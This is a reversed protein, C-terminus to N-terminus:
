QISSLAAAINLVMQRWTRGGRRQVALLRADQATQDRRIGRMCKEPCHARRRGRNKAM